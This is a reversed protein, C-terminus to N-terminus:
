ARGRLAFKYFIMLMASFVTIGVGLEVLLIGLHQGHAPHEPNLVNYELFKGGKVVCWIGVGAYLLVGLPILKEIINRPAAHETRKLGYVLAHLIYAAAFIVGAQFGGGPGFDGHFQVYLAYLLIYPILMKGGVALIPEQEEIIETIERGRGLLMMVAVAATLVVTTEGLTDYGRYSALVTTVINPIHSDAFSNNLYHDATASTHIYATPDGFHPMDQTAYILTAGTILAILMPFVSAETPKSEKDSTLNLVMLMLVTSIGAGVAAETFAVDVADMIVFLCASLLSFIGSLMVAGFLSRMRGIMVAVVVLLIFLFITIGTFITM